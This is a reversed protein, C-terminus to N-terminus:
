DLLLACHLPGGERVTGGTSGGRPTSGCLRVRVSSSSLTYGSLYGCLRVRVSSSSLTYGSLYFLLGPGVLRWLRIM